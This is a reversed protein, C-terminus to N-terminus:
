SANAELAQPYSGLVRVEAGLAQLGRLTSDAAPDNPHGAFDLFFANPLRSDATLMSEVRLLNLKARSFPQLLDCLLGPRDEAQILLSTRDNGSSPPTTRGLVLFRMTRRHGDQIGERAVRLGFLEAAMATAIAAGEPDEKALRAAEATSGVEHRAM